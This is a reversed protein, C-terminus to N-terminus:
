QRSPKPISKSRSDILEQYLDIYRKASVEWSFDKRMANEIMLTHRKKSFKWVNIATMLRRELEYSTYKKFLYGDRNNEISDKLGGTARAVPLTGYRMAIMQILGCPEFKSPIILFDSGAYIQSALRKDFEFTCHISKPYFSSLWKFREEWDKEGSGLFVFQFKSLDIRRLMKHIIDLGKQNSDLRGIFGILPKRETVEFGLKEQLFAKNLKKGEVFSYLKQKIDPNKGDVNFKYILDRDVAPNRTDYDIGNLIGHLKDRMEELYEDLGVGYEETLIEKAYTPSVANIIDAHVLGELLFSVKKRKIEWDLLRCTDAKLGIKEITDIDSEGKHMLNHITLVTKFELGHHKVLLPILGTHHDNCHIIDPLWNLSNKKMIEIVAFNFFAFTERDPISLYDENQILYVPIKSKLFHIEFINVISKKGAYNIVIKKVTKKTQGQLKLAKYFPLIVRVDVGQSFLAKPLSRAVDGLGGLQFFPALEWVVFLIKM